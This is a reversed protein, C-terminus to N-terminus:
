CRASDRLEVTCGALKRNIASSRLTSGSGAINNSPLAVMTTMSPTSIYKDGASTARNNSARRWKDEQLRVRITKLKMVRHGSPLDLKRGCLQSISRQSAHRLSGNVQATAGCAM